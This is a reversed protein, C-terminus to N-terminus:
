LHLSVHRMDGLEIGRRSSFGLVDQEIDDGSEQVGQVHGGEHLRREPDEERPPVSRQCPRAKSPRRDDKLFM